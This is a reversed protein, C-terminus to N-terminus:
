SHAIRIDDYIQLISTEYEGGYVYLISIDWQGNDIQLM